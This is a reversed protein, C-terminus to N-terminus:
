IMVFQSITATPKCIIVTVWVQLNRYDFDTMAEEREKQKKKVKRKDRTGRILTAKLLATLEEAHRTANFHAHDQRPIPSLVQNTNGILPILFGSKNRVFAPCKLGREEWIAYCKARLNWGAGM